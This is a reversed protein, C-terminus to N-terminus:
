LVIGHERRIEFLPKEKLNALEEFAVRKKMRRCKAVIALVRPVCGLWVGLLKFHGIGSLVKRHEQDSVAKHMESVKATTGFVMYVHAAIEDEISTGCGFLVHVADPQEFAQSMQASMAETLDEQGEAARLESIAEELTATSNPDFYKPMM